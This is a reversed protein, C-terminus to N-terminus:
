SQVEKVEKLEVLVAIKLQRRVQWPECLTRRFLDLGATFFFALIIALFLGAGLLAPVNPSLPKKPTQAPKLTQFRHKFAARTTDLALRAAETRMLLEQYRDLSVRVQEQAVTISPDRELEPPLNALTAGSVLGTPLQPQVPVVALQSSLRKGGKDELDGQLEEVDRKLAQLQPSDLELYKVKRELDTVAPHLRNYRVAAAQLAAKAEKVARRKQENLEAVAQQKNRLTFELQALEQPSTVRARAARKKAARAVARSEGRSREKITESLNALSANVMEQMQSTHMELISIAENIADVQRVHRTELFSSTAVDVIRHAMEPDPWDCSIEVTQADASVMLRKELTGVVIDKWVEDGWAGFVLQQLQDKMKMLPHRRLRWQVVLDSQAAIKEISDHALIHERAARTPQDESVPVNPNVLLAMSAVPRALLKTSAVYRRPLAAAVIATLLLTVGIVTFGLKPHRGFSRWVFRVWDALAPWDFLPPPRKGKVEQPEM